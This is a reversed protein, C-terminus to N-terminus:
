IRGQNEKLILCKAKSTQIQWKLPIRRVFFFNMVYYNDWKATMPSSLRSNRCILRCQGGHHSVVEMLRDCEIPRVSVNNPTAVVSNCVGGMSPSCSPSYRFLAPLFFRPPPFTLPSPSYETPFRIRLTSSAFTITQDFRRSGSHTASLHHVM